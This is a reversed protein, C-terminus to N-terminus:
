DSPLDIARRAPDPQRRYLIAVRGIRGAVEAHARSAIADAAAAREDRDGALRIKILERAALAEDVERLVADTVGATGVLVVPDLGHALARLASRQRSTLGTM